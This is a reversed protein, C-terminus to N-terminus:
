PMTGKGKKKNAKKSGGFDSLDVDLGDLIEGETLLFIVVVTIIIFSGFSGFSIDRLVSREDHNITIGFVCLYFFSILSAFFGFSFITSGNIIWFVMLSITLLGNVICAVTVTVRKTKHFTQLMLYVLFLVALAPLVGLLLSHLELAINKSVYYAAVSCGNAISNLFFSIFYSGKRKKGIWHFPIALIMLILGPILGYWEKLIATSILTSIIFVGISIVAFLFVVFAKAKTHLFQVLSM